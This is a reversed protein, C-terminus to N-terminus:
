KIKREELKKLLRLIIVPIITIFIGGGVIALFYIILELVLKM